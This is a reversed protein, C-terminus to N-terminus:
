WYFNEFFLVEIDAGANQGFGEDGLVRNPIFVVERVVVNMDDHSAFEEFSELVILWKYM